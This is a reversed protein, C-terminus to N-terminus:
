RNLIYSILGPPSIAEQTDKLEQLSWWKIELVDRHEDETWNTKDLVLGDAEYEFIHDTFTHHNLGDAWDWRGSFEGVQFGLENEDILLGTEEYLERAAAKRPSEGTDIGGGPTLWRPPLGVEPDFHTLLLLIEGTRNTLLVRGTARHEGPQTM